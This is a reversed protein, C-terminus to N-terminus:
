EEIIIFVDENEKSMLFQERAFKELNEQNTKLEKIKQQDSVIKEKLFAEQESLQELKERNENQQVLNHEDFLLIWVLFLLLAIGYKTKVKKWFISLLKKM